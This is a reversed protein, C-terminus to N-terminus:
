DRHTGKWISRPLEIEEETLYTNLDNALNKISNKTKKNKFWILKKIYEPHLDNKLCM